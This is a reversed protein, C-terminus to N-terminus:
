PAEEAVDLSPKLCHQVDCSDSDPKGVAQIGWQLNLTGLGVWQRIRKPVM